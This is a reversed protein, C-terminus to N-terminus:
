QEQIVSTHVIYRATHLSIELRTCWQKHSETAILITYLLTFHATDSV